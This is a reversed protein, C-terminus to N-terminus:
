VINDYEIATTLFSENTSYDLYFSLIDGVYSVTDLVLSGFSNESFDQFSGPYYRKVHQILDNKITAYDRSTYNIPVIKKKYGPM